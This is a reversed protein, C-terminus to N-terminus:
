RAVGEIGAPAAGLSVLAADPLGLLTTVLDSGLALCEPCTVDGWASIAIGSGARYAALDCLMRSLFPRGQPTIFVFHMPRPAPDHTTTRTGM